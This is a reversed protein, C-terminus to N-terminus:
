PVFYSIERQFNIGISYLQMCVYIKALLHTILGKTPYVKHCIHVHTTMIYSITNYNSYYSYSILAITGNVAIIKNCKDSHVM